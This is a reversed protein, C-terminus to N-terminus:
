DYSWPLPQNGDTTEIKDKQGQLGASTEAGASQEIQAVEKEIEQYGPSNIRKFFYRYVFGKAYDKDNPLKKMTPIPKVTSLFKKIEPKLLKHKRVNMGRGAINTPEWQDPKNPIPILRVGLSINSSGAYFTGSSTEMYHGVFEKETKQVLFEGGTTYKQKIQSRPIM